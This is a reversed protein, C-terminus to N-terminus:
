GDDTFRDELRILVKSIQGMPLRQNVVKACALAYALSREDSELLRLHGLDKRWQGAKRQSQSLIRNISGREPSRSPTRDRNKRCVLVADWKISGADSHFGSHGESRIPFLNTVMFSSQSLACALSEWALRRKHHYTFVMLGQHKLVRYCELFAKTLGVVFRQHSEGSEDGNNGPVFLSAEIPSHRASWVGDGDNLARRLWVYYFDSYESYPLNDYYPPDTMIIDITQDPIPELSESSQNLLLSDAEQRSWVEFETSTQTTVREGTYVKRSRQNRRPLIEYPSESYAKGRIVKEICRSFSGRGLGTSLLNVEVPRNVHAFAHLGFLPTLKRYGFAYYCFMNNSSLCDSFGLVLFERIHKDKVALIKKFIKSLGLLQRGNFLEYYHRHGFSVPRPDSRGGVPIRARPFPLRKWESELLDEAARYREFERETPQAFGRTECEKCYYEVMFMRRAVPKSDATLDGHTFRYGCRPCTFRGLRVQGEEIHTTKMCDSCVLDKGLIDLETISKCDKCFVVQQGGKRDGALRYHPHAEFSHNCQPCQPYDVWFFHIAGSDHGRPDTVTYLHGIESTVEALIRQYERRLLVRDCSELEKKTVFWAVPDLDNGITRANMKAAEVISTGGGMFPDLVVLDDMRNSSYYMKWLSHRHIRSPMISALLMMRVNVGLRRAWWKHMEYIPRKRNGEKMALLSLLEIPFYTEIKTRRPIRKATLADVQLAASAELERFSGRRPRMGRM